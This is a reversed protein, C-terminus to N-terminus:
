IGIPYKGYKHAADVMWKLRIPDVTPHSHSTSLIYGGGRAADHIAKKVAEEVEQQTGKVMLYSVDLNGILVLKHGVKERVKGLDMGATPELTIIGDFGWEIFKDLLAYINGCCHFIFKRKQRHVFDAVRRYSEGYLKEILDPRMLPGTKQGLDDGGLVVEVGSKMVADLNRIYLDTHFSIVKKVFEPKQYVFRTFNVFGIPQWSNEFIGPAAYGISYIRDGYNDVLKKHFSAINRIMTEFLPARKEVWAEWKEETDCLARSYNVTMNGDADAGLDWVRGYPDYWSWGLSAQADRNMKMLAYITWNADFGLKIAGQLAGASNDYYMKNWFRNTNLLAKIQNGLVPKQLMGVFNAPKKELIQNVTAPDMILGMVPVQDPEEHNMATLIREKFTM